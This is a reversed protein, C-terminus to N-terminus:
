ETIQADIEQHAAQMGVAGRLLASLRFVGDKACLGAPSVAGTECFESAGSQPFRITQQCLRLSLQAHTLTALKM